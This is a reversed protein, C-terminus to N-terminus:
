NVGKSKQNWYPERLKNKLIKGAGSMPLEDVFKVQRPCKYGAIRSKCFDRVLHFIILVWRQSFPPLWVSFVATRMIPTAM